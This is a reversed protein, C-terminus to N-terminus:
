REEFFATSAAKIISAANGWILKLYSTEHASGVYGILVRLYEIEKAINTRKSDVIGTGDFQLVFDIAEDKIGKFTSSGSTDGIPQKDEFKVEFKRTISNPNVQVVMSGVKRSVDKKGAVAYAEITLKSSSAGSSFLGM